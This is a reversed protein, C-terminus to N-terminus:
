IKRFKFVPEYKNWEYENGNKVKIFNSGKAIQKQVLEETLDRGPFTRMLQYLKEEYKFGCDEAFKISDSELPKVKNKIKIDAINWFFLGDKRLFDYSNQITPQLFGDRWSEYESFKRFSQNEDQSYREKAFYPPSTYVIDGEGKYQEFEKQHKFDESGICLPITEGTCHENIINQWYKTVQSYREYIDSNPDTGIYVCKKNALDPHKIAALFAVLRGAWGMSPDWVIFKDSDFRNEKVSHYQWIWKAVSCRINTVPQAGSVVRIGSNLKPFIRESTSVYQRIKNDLCIRKFKKFWLDSDRLQGIVSYHNKEGKTIQVDGMEPFWHNVANGFNNYGKLVRRDENDIYAVNETFINITALKQLNKNIARLDSNGQGIPTKENEYKDILFLRLREVFEKQGDDTMDFIDCRRLNLEPPVVLKKYVPELKEKNKHEQITNWLWDNSM